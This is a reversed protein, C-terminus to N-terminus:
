YVSGYIFSFMVERTSTFIIECHGIVCLKLLELSVLNWLICSKSTASVFVNQEMACATEAGILRNWSHFIQPSRQINEGLIRQWMPPSGSIHQSVAAPFVFSTSFPQSDSDSHLRDHRLHAHHCNRYPMSEVITTISGNTLMPECTRRLLLLSWRVTHTNPPNYGTHTYHEKM